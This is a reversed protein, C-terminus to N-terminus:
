ALDDLRLRIYEILMGPDIGRDICLQELTIDSNVVTKIDIGFAQFEPCCEPLSLLIDKVASDRQIAFFSM